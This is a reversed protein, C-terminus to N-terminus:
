DEVKILLDKPNFLKFIENPEGLNNVGRLKDLDGIVGGGTMKAKAMNDLLQKHQDGQYDIVFLRPSGKVYPMHVWRPNILSRVNEMNYDMVWLYIYGKDNDSIPEDFHVGLIIVQGIGSIDSAPWGMFNAPAFYLGVSYFMVVATLVVKIWSNVNSRIFIFLLLISLLVFGVTLGAYGMFIDPVMKDTGGLPALLTTVVVM